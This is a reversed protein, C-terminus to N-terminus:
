SKDMLAHSGPRSQRIVPLSSAGFALEERVIAEKRESVEVDGTSIM